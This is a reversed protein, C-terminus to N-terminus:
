GSAVDPEGHAHTLRPSGADWRRIRDYSRVFPVWRDHGSSDVYRVRGNGQGDMLADLMTTTDLQMVKQCSPLPCRM